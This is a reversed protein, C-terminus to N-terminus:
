RQGGDKTEPRRELQSEPLCSLGGPKSWCVVRYDPDELRSVQWTESVRTVGLREESLCGTLLLVALATVLAVIIITRGQFESLRKM